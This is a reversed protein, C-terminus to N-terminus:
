PLLVANIGVPVRVSSLGGLIAYIQVAFGVYKISSDIMKVYEM